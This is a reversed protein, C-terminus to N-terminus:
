NIILEDIRKIIENKESENLKKDLKNYFGYVELTLHEKIKNIIANMDPKLDKNFVQTINNLEDEIGKHQQMLDFILTTDQSSFRDFLTFIANDEIFLHKNLHWKLAQFQKKASEYDLEILENVKMLMANIKGHDSLMKIKISTEM